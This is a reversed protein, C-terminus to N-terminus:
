MTDQMTEQVTSKACPPNSRHSPELSQAAGYQRPILGLFRQFSLDSHTRLIIAPRRHGEVVLGDREAAVEGAVIVVVDKPVLLASDVAQVLQAVVKHVGVGMKRPIMLRSDGNGTHLKWRRM